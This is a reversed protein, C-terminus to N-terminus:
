VLPHKILVDSAAARYKCYDCYKGAQPLTNEELTSKINWLTNEIWDTKGKYALVDVDFELRADFAEVDTKGNCYVFYGVDSVEFGNQRFLWQYVEMQRKYANQWPAHISVQGIKSTAKYDVIILKGNDDEWVDDVGGRILLNTPEHLFSIGQSLSARWKDMDKHQFPRASIGYHEMLPHASGASRHMDFEKKLLTDVANNLNFPFSPPRAVGLRKDLYFCKPCNVYLEIGTRSLKFPKESFPVYLNRSKPPNYKSVFM